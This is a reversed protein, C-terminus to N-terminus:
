MISQRKNPVTRMPKLSRVLSSLFADMQKYTPMVSTAGISKDWASRIKFDLKCTIYVVLIDDWHETPRKLDALESLVQNTGELLKALELPCERSMSPLELLRKILRSVLLRENDYRRKLADWAVAFNGASVSIDKIIEAAKGSCSGHLYQLMHIESLTPNNSITSEFAHRFSIWDELQGSFKPPDIAKIRMVSRDITDTAQVSPAAAHEAPRPLLAELACAARIYEAEVADYDDEAHAPEDDEAVDYQNWAEEYQTWYHNLLELRKKVETEGASRGGATSKGSNMRFREIKKAKKVLASARADPSRRQSGSKDTDNVM